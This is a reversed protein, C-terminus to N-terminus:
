FHRAPTSPKFLLVCKCPIIFVLPAHEVSKILYVRCVSLAACPISQVPHRWKVSLLIFFIIPLLSRLCHFAVGRLSCPPGRQHRTSSFEVWLFLFFLLPSWSPQLSWRFKCQLHLTETRSIDYTLTGAHLSCTAEKWWILASWSLQLSSRFAGVCYFNHLLALRRSLWLGM